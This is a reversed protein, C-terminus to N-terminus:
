NFKVMIKVIEKKICKCASISLEERKKRTKENGGDITINDTTKRRKSASNFLNM